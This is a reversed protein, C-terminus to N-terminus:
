GFLGGAMALPVGAAAFGILFSRVYVQKMFMLM